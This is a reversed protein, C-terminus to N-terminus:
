VLESVKLPFRKELRSIKFRYRAPSRSTGQGKIELDPILRHLEAGAVGRMDDPVGLYHFVEDKPLDLEADDDYQDLWASVRQALAMKWSNHYNNVIPNEGVINPLLEKPSEFETYKGERTQRQLTDVLGWLNRMNMSIPGIAQHAKRWCNEQGLLKGTMDYIVWQFIHGQPKHKLLNIQDLATDKCYIFIDTAERVRLDVFMEDIVSYIYASQFKRLQQILTDNKINVNSGSRRAEGYEVNPEDVYIVGGEYRSDLSLLADRELPQAEYILTVNGVEVGVKISMNSWCTEGVRM